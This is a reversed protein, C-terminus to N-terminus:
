KLYEMVTKIIELMAQAKADYETAGIGIQTISPTSLMSLCIIKDSSSNSCNFHKLKVGLEKQIEQFTEQVIWTKYNELKSVVDMKKRLDDSIKDFYLKKFFNHSDTICENTPTFQETDRMEGSAIYASIAKKSLETLTLTSKDSEVHDHIEINFDRLEDEITRQNGKNNINLVSPQNAHDNAIVRNQEKTSNFNSKVHSSQASELSKTITSEGDELTQGYKIVKEISKRQYMSTDPYKITNNNNHFMASDNDVAINQMAINPKIYPMLAKGASAEAVESVEVHLVPKTIKIASKDITIDQLKCFLNEIKRYTEIPLINSAILLQLMNKAAEQKASKKCHAVGTAEQSGVCCRIKFTKMHGPGNEDALDYLPLDIRYQM